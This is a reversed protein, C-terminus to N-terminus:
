FQMGLKVNALYQTDLRAGNEDEFAGGPFLVGGEAGIQVHTLRDVGLRADFGADLEVGLDHRDSDGGDYNAVNGLAGFHYPDVFDATTQAFVAGLKLDVWSQPRVVVRPNVYTTGFIGGKSPLFQLGPQARNVIDPDQAITAARATKWRLVHDFLVLGVNHNADFTFRRTKGDAPDADGSAYGWEVEGVVDGWADDGEGTVHTFGLKAAGGYSQIEEEDRASTPDIPQPFATRVFTTDGFIAAVEFQGFVFADAGPVPAHFKGALDFVGVTLEETYPTLEGTSAGDREQHRLVGYFGIEAPKTRWLLAGVGQYARDDDDILDATNDEFVIDGALVVTLPTGKGAPTTAFLARQTLSGREYDGFVTPEDGSNALLGMGWKSTQQGVRFVGIGSRYEMYLQRPHVEYWKEEDLADRDATVFRTNDGVVLGRAVDIEGVLSLTKRYDIRPKLRLWHYLYQNLGLQRNEATDQRLPPQLRTDSIARYRLQYEGHLLFRLRNDSPPTPVVRGDDLVFRPQFGDDDRAAEREAERDIAESHKTADETADEQGLAVSSVLLCTGSFSVVAALSRPSRM